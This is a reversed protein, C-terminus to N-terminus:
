AQGGETDSSLTKVQEAYVLFEEIRKMKAQTMAKDYRINVGEQNLKKVTGVIDSYEYIMKKLNTDSVRNEKDHLGFRLAKATVKQLESCEEMLTVLIHELRNM